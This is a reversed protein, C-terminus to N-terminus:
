YIAGPREPVHFRMQKGAEKGDIRMTSPVLARRENGCVLVFQWEGTEPLRLKQSGDPARTAAVMQLGVRGIPGIAQVLCGPDRDLVVTLELAPALDIDGVDTIPAVPRPLRIRTVAYQGGGIRLEGGGAASAAVQFRGDAGTRADGGKADTM